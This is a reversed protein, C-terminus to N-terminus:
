PWLSREPQCLQLLKVLFVYQWIDIDYSIALRTITHWACGNTSDTQGHVGAGGDGGRGPGRNGGGGGGSM